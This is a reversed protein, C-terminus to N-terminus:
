EDTLVQSREVTVEQVFSERIRLHEKACFRDQAVQTREHQLYSFMLVSHLCAHVSRAPDGGESLVWSIVICGSHSASRHPLHFCERRRNCSYCWYNGVESCLAQSVRICSTM